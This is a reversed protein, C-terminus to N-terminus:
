PSRPWAAKGGCAQPAGREPPPPSVRHPRQRFSRAQAKVAAPGQYGARSAADSQRQGGRQGLCTGFDHQHCARGIFDVGGALGDTVASALRLGGPEVDGIKGRDASKKGIGRWATSVRRPRM